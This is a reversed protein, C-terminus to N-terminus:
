IAVKFFMVINIAGIVQLCFYFNVMNDGLDTFIAPDLELLQERNEIGEPLLFITDYYHM